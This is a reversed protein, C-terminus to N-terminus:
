NPLAALGTLYFLAQRRIGFQFNPTCRVGKIKINDQWKIKNMRLIYWSNYQSICNKQTQTIIHERRLYSRSVIVSDKLQGLLLIWLLVTSEKLPFHPRNWSNLSENFQKQLFFNFLKTDKVQWRCGNGSMKLTPASCQQSKKLAGLHIPSLM